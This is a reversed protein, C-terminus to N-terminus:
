IEATKDVLFKHITKEHGCVKGTSTKKEKEKKILRGQLYVVSAIM